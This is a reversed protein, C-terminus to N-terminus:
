NIFKYKWKYGGAHTYEGKCARGISADDVGTSEKAETHTKFKAIENGKLDMQVITYLRKSQLYDLDWDTDDGKFKWAFGGICGRKKGEKKDAIVRCKIGTEREAQSMSYHEKIFNGKLDYQLIARTAKTNRGEKVDLYSKDLNQKLTMLQINDFSYGKYDDLRDISPKINANYDSEVWKTYLKDFNDQKTMWDYLEDFTYSPPNHKRVISNRKQTLYIKKVLGKKTRYSVVSHKCRCKKCQNLVGDRTNKSKHFESFAKVEGCVTCKKEM